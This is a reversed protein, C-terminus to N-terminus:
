ATMNRFRRFLLTALLVILISVGIWIWHHLNWNTMDPLMQERAHLAALFSPTTDSRTQQALLWMARGTDEQAIAVALSTPDWVAYTDTLNFQTLIPGILLWATLLAVKFFTSLRPWLTAMAFSFSCLVISQPLLIIAWLIIIGPIDPTLYRDPQIQHRSLNVILIALLVLFALGMSLLLSCFFRGWVYAWTPLSTTMLLEHTRRKLDRAVGDGCLFPTFLALGMGIVLPLTHLLGFNSGWDIWFTRTITGISITEQGANAFILQIICALAFVIFSLVWTTRSAVIRRLEWQVVRALMNSQHLSSAKKVKEPVFHISSITM